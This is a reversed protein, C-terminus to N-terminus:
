LKALHHTFQVGDKTSDEWLRANVGSSIERAWICEDRRECNFHGAVDACANSVLTGAHNAGCHKAQQPKPLLPQFSAFTVILASENDAKFFWLNVQM